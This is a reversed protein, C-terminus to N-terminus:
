FSPSSLFNHIQNNVLNLNPAAMIKGRLLLTGLQPCNAFTDADEEPDIDTLHYMCTM